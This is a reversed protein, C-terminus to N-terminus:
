TTLAAPRPAPNLRYHEAEAEAPPMNSISSHLGRNNWWDVWALPRSSSTPSPRSRGTCSPGPRLCEAKYWSRASGGRPASATVKGRRYLGGTNRPHVAACRGGRRGELHSCRGAPRAAELQQLDEGRGSLRPPSSWASQRRRLRREGARRHVDSEPGGSGPDLYSPGPGIASIWGADAEPPITYGLHQLSYIVNMACHNM